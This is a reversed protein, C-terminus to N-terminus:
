RVLFRSNPFDVCVVHTAFFNAGVFGDAEAPEGFDFLRLELPGFDTGGLEFRRSSYV